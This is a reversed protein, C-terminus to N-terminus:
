EGGEVADEVIDLIYASVSKGQSKAVRSVTSHLADTMRFSLRVSKRQSKPLPPRGMKKRKM